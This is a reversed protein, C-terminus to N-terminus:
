SGPEAEALRFSGVERGDPMTIIWPGRFLGYACWDCGRSAKSRGGDKTPAGSLAGMSRGICEQGIRNPDGGAAKFDRATAVDGCTPCVFAWDLPDDGFRRKAEALLEKQTFRYTEDVPVSM